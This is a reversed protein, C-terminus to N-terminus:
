WYTRIQNVLRGWSSPPLNRPPIAFTTRRDHADRAVLSEEGGVQSAVRLGEALQDRAVFATM